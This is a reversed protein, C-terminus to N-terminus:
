TFQFGEPEPYPTTASPPSHRYALQPEALHDSRALSCGRRRRCVNILDLRFLSTLANDLNMQMLNQLCAWWSHVVTSDCCSRRLSVSPKDESTVGHFWASLPVLKLEFWFATQQIDMVATTHLPWVTLLIWTYVQLHPM